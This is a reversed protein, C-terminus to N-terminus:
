RGVLLRRTKATPYLLLANPQGRKPVRKLLGAGCLTAALRIIPARDQTLAGALASATYRGPELLVTALIMVERVTLARERTGIKGATTAQLIGLTTHLEDAEASTILTLTTPKKM